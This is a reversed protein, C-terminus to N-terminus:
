SRRKQLRSKLVEGMYTQPFDKLFYATKAPDAAIEEFDESLQRAEKPRKGYQKLLTEPELASLNLQENWGDEDANFRECVVAAAEERTAGLVILIDMYACLERDRDARYAKGFVDNGRGKAFGLAKNVDRDPGTHCAHFAHQIWWLIELPPYVGSWLSLLFAQMAYVPNGTERFLRTLQGVPGAEITPLQALDDTDVRPLMVALDAELPDRFERKWDRM